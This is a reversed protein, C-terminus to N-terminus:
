APRVRQTHYVICVPAGEPITVVSASDNVITIVIGDAANETVVGDGRLVCGSALIKQELTVGCWGRTMRVGLGTEIAATENPQITIERQAFIDWRQSGHQRVPIYQLDKKPLWEVPNTITQPPPKWIFKHIPGRWIRSM